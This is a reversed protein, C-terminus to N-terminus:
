PVVTFEYLAAEGLNNAVVLAWPGSTMDAGWYPIGFPSVINTASAPVLKFHQIIAALPSTTFLPVVIMLVVDAPTGGSTYYLWYALHGINSAQIRPAPNGAGDLVQAGVATPELSQVDPMHAQVLQLLDEKGLRTRETPVGVNVNSLDISEEEPPAVVQDVPSSDGESSCGVFLAFLAILCVAFLSTKAKM